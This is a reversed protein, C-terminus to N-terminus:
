PALSDRIQLPSDQLGVATTLEALDSRDELDYKIQNCLRTRDSGVTILEASM